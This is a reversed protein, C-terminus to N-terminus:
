TEFKQLFDASNYYKIIKLTETYLGCQLKNKAWYFFSRSYSVVRNKEEEADRFTSFVGFVSGSITFTVVICASCIEYEFIISSFM